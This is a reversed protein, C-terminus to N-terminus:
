HKSRVNEGAGEDNRLSRELIAGNHLAAESESISLVEDNKSRDDAESRVALM